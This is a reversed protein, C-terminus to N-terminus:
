LSANCSGCAFRIQDSSILPERYLIKVLPRIGAADPGYREAISYFQEFDHSRLGLKPGKKTWKLNGREDRAHGCHLLEHEAIALWHADPAKQAIPASLTILFDPEYCFWQELQYLQRAKQWPDGRFFPMEATGAVVRGRKFNEANTWLVALSAFKLHDHEKNYLPSDKQTFTKRLWKEVDPAPEFEGGPEILSAPPQPRILQNSM